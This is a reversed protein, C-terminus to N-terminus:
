VAHEYSVCTVDTHALNKQTQLPYGIESAMENFEMSRTELRTLRPAMSSDCNDYPNECGLSSLDQKV